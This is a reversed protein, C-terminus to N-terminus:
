TSNHVVFMKNDRSIIIDLEIERCGDAYVKKFARITNQNFGEYNCGRHGILVPNEM